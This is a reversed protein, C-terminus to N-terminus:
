QPIRAPLHTPSERLTKTETRGDKFTSIQTTTKVGNKDTVTETSILKKETESATSFGLAAGVSVDISASASGRVARGVKADNLNEASIERSFLKEMFVGGTEPTMTKEVGFEFALGVSAGVSGGLAAGVGADLRGLGAGIGASMKVSATAGASAKVAKTSRMTVTGDRNKTFVVADSLNVDVGLSLEAKAVIGMSGDSSEAGISHSLKMGLVHFKGDKTIAVSAGPTMADLCSTLRMRQELRFQQARASRLNGLREYGTAASQIDTALGEFYHQKRLLEGRLFLSRSRSAALKGNDALLATMFGAAANEPLFERLNADVIEALSVQAGVPKSALLAKLHTQDSRVRVKDAAVRQRWHPDSVAISEVSKGISAASLELACHTATLFALATRKDDLEGLYSSILRGEITGGSSLAVRANDGLQVVTELQLTKELKEAGPMGKKVGLRRWAARFEDTGSPKKEDHLKTMLVYRGRNFRAPTLAAMLKRLADARLDSQSAGPAGEYTSLLAAYSTEIEKQWERSIGVDLKKELIKPEIARLIAYSEEPTFVGIVPYGDPGPKDSESNHLWALRLRASTTEFQTRELEYTDYRASAEDISCDLLDEAVPAAPALHMLADDLGIPRGQAVHMRRMFEGLLVAAEREHFPLKVARVIANALDADSLRFSGGKLKVFGGALMSLTESDIDEPRNIAVRNLAMLALASSQGEIKKLEAVTSAPSAVFGHKIRKAQLEDIGLSQLRM